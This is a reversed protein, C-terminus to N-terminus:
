NDNRCKNMFSFLKRTYDKNRYDSTMLYVVYCFYKIKELIMEETVNPGGIHRFEVYKNDEETLINSLNLGHTRDLGKNVINGRRLLIETIGNEIKDINTEFPELLVQKRWYHTPNKFYKVLFDHLKTKLSKCYHSTKRDELGKFAYDDSLMIIGKIANWRPNNKAGINVHISTKKNFIWNNQNRFDTFFTRLFEEAETVTEFPRHQTDPYTDKDFTSNVIEIGQPVTEDYHLSIRDKYKESFVPFSKKYRNFLVTNKRSPYLPWSENTFDRDIEIEFGITFYDNLEELLLRDERKYENIYNYYNTIM